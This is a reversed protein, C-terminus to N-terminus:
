REHGVRRRRQRSGHVRRERIGRIRAHRRRRNYQLPIGSGDGSRIRFRGTSAEGVLGNNATLVARLQARETEPSPNNWVCSTATAPLNTCEAIATWSTGTASFFLDVDHVGSTGGNSSFTVTFPSSKSVIQDTAPATIRISPYDSPPELRTVVTSDSVPTSYGDTATFFFTRSGFDMSACIAARNEWPASGPTNESWEYQLLHGDPDQATGQLSPEDNYSAQDPGANVTPPRNARPATNLLVFGSTLLDTYGDGNVDATNLNGINYEFRRATLPGVTDMAFSVAASFTGDGRGPLISVSDVSKLWDGCMVDVSQSSRNTTAIDTRGDRTFDGVVVSQTGPPTPRTIPAAYTRAGTALYVYVLGTSWPGDDSDGRASVVLDLRGDGNLDRTTVDTSSHAIPLEQPTFSFGAGNRFITLRREYRHAVVIDRLGDADLDAVIHGHPWAGTEYTFAADFTFDGNGPLVHLSTGEQGLVLDRLGDNNMDAVTAFSFYGGGMVVRAAGLAATGTGPLVVVNDGSVAVVDPYSDNNIRGVTLVLGSTASMVAAAFTGNGNGLAIAVRGGATAVLDTRGDGNVDAPWTEGAVPVANITVAPLLASEQATPRLGAALTCCLLAASWHLFSRRKM